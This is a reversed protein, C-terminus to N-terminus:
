PAGDRTALDDLVKLQQDRLMQPGTFDKGRLADAPWGRMGAYALEIVEPRLRSLVNDMGPRARDARLAGLDIDANAVMSEGPGAQALVSGDFGVVVSGGDTSAAPIPTGVIGASNASVLYAMNESARAQRAIAKPTLRPSGAESTSHCLVEAGRLVFARVLEPYRVEESAIPALCGIETTVVPFISEPGHVDLYDTWLDHPTPAYLSNLRRYTLIRQGGPDIIACAQFYVDPFAADTEYLNLAVYVQASLAIDGLANWIDDDPGVCARDIWDQPSNGVPFGTLAYEPLVVLRVDPGVFSKSARVQSGIRTVAQAMAARAKGVTALLAVSHCTTQLALARYRM